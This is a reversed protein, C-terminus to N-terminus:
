PAKVPELLALAEAVVQEVTIARVCPHYPLEGAPFDLQGCPVCPVSARVVRHRGDVSWPGFREAPVPGFLRVTPAGCAEALHLIGSDPGLVAASGVLVAAVQGVSAGVLPTPRARECAHVVTEVMGIEPQTGTVVVSVGAAALADAVPGWREAPWLKVAAGSGPHIVAFRHPVGYEDRWRAAFALDEDAPTLSMPPREACPGALVAALDLCRAAEHEAWPEPLSHTLFPLADPYAFGLRRPIGARAALMAGWWFDHRMVVATDFSLGALRRAERLLVGYPHLPSSKPRRDFFPFPLTLVEDVMPLCAAADANWPGVLLALHADPLAARLHTLAPTTLLLDGLHDPRIVLVRHPPGAPSAAVPGAALRGGARRLLWSRAATRAPM